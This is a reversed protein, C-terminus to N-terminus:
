RRRQMARQAQAWQQESNRFVESQPDPYFATLRQFERAAADYQRSMLLNYARQYREIVQETLQRQAVAFRRQDAPDELVDGRTYSLARRYAEHARFLADTEVAVLAFRERAEEIAERARRDDPPQRPLPRRIEARIAEASLEPAAAIDDGTGNGRLTGFFVFLGVMALLYVGIGIWVKHRGTLGRKTPAEDFAPAEAAEAGAPGRPAWVRLVVVDGVAIEAREPLPRRDRVVKGNLATGNSSHNVLWWQGGDFALEGHKRSATPPDVVVTNGAARGFTIPSRDLVLRRGANPGSDIQVHIPSPTVSVAAVENV